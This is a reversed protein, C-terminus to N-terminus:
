EQLRILATATWLVAAQGHYDGTIRPRRLYYGVRKKANTWMSVGIVEGKENVFDTSLVKWGKEIAPLYETAPLIGLDVGTIMSFLFMGTCSPEAFSEPNDLLQHWMGDSGQFELLGQMMKRYATVLRNYYRHNEPLDRLLEGMAAAGWGNGRGWYHPAKPRHYFLGNPRQLSDIYTIIQLAARDLYKEEGTSRYAQLQLAGVMFMDDVWFRTLATLGDPRPNIYEHDALEKGMELYDTNGTQQYLELPWIGFVNFDVHGRRYKRKGELYPQFGEEVQRAIEKNDSAEAFNLAGYYACVKQYRWGFRRDIINAAIKNGIEEPSNDLDLDPDLDPDTFLRLHHTESPEWFPNSLGTLSWSGPDSPIHFSFGPVPGPSRNEVAKAQQEPLVILVTALLLIIKQYGKMM